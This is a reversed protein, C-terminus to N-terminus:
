AAAMCDASAAAASAKSAANGAYLGLLLCAQYLLLVQGRDLGDLLHKALSYGGESINVLYESM